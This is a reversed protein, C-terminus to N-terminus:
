DRRYGDDEYLGDGDAARGADVRARAAAELKRLEAEYAEMREAKAEDRGARRGKRWVGFLALLGVVLGGLVVTLSGGPLLDMM